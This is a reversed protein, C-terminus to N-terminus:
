GGGISLLSHLMDLIGDDQAAQQIDHSSDGLLNFMKEAADNDIDIPIRLKEDIWERIHDLIGLNDPPNALEKGHKIANYGMYGLGSAIAGAGIGATIYKHRKDFKRNKLIDRFKDRFKNNYLEFVPVM